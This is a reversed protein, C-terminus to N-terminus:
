LINKDQNPMTAYFVFTPNGIRRRLNMWWGDIKVIAFEIAGVKVMKYAKTKITKNDIKATIM